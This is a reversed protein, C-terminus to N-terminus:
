HWSASPGLALVEARVEELAGTACRQAPFALTVPSVTAAGTHTREACAEERRLDVTCLPRRCELGRERM